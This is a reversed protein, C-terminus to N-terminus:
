SVLELLLLGHMGSTMIVTFLMKTTTKALGTSWDLGTTWDLSQQCGLKIAQFTSTIRPLDRQSVTMGDNYVLLTYM